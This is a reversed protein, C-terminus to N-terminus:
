FTTLVDTVREALAEHAVKKNKGCKSTMQSRNSFLRLSFPLSYASKRPWMLPAVGQMILSSMRYMNAVMSLLLFQSLHDRPRQDSTVLPLVFSSFDHQGQYRDWLASHSSVRGLTKMENRFRGGIAMFYCSVKDKSLSILQGRSEIFRVSIVSQM